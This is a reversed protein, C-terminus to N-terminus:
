ITHFFCHIEMKAVYHIQGGRYTASHGCNRLLLIRPLSYNKKHESSVSFSKVDRSM